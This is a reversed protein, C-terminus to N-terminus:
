LASTYLAYGPLRWPRAAGAEASEDGGSEQVAGCIEQRQTDRLVAPTTSLDAQHRFASHTVRHAPVRSFAAVCKVYREVTGLVAPMSHGTMVCRVRNAAADYELLSAHQKVLAQFSVDMTQVTSASEIGGPSM